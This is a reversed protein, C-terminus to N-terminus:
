WKNLNVMDYIQAFGTDIFETTQAQVTSLRSLPQDVINEPKM